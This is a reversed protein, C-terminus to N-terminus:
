IKKYWVNMSEIQGAIDTNNILTGAIHYGNKHFTMNMGASKARAITYATKIGLEILKKEMDVLLYQAFGNGRYENLVAFDTMEANSYAKYQEISSLAVLKEEQWIGYYIVNEEMTKRIYAQDYIPFPYSRFVKHYVETMAPIDNKTAQRCSFGKKLQSDSATRAKSSVVDLISKGEEKYPDIKRNQSFYKCIFCGDKRDNYFTPIVAEIEYGNLEFIKKDCLSIKAVIKSYKNKIALEDLREMMVPLDAVDLSMVYIRNSDKGHHITTNGIIEVIDPM